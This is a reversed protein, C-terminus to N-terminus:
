IQELQEKETAAKNYSYYIHLYRNRENSPFVTREVTTENVGFRRITYQRSYTGIRLCSSREDRGVNAPLEADPFYKVFNPNPYMMTDDDKCKKKDHDVQSDLPLILPECSGGTTM